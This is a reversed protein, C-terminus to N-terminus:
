DHICLWSCLYCMHEKEFTAIPRCFQQQAECWIASCTVITLKTAKRPDLPIKRIIVQFRIPSLGNYINMMIVIIYIYNYIYNNIHNYIIIIIIIIYLQKDGTRNWTIIFFDRDVWAFGGFQSNYGARCNPTLSLLLAPSGNCCKFFFM